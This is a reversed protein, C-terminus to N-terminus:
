VRALVRILGIARLSRHFLDYRAGAEQLILDGMDIKRITSAVANEPSTRTQTSLSRDGALRDPLPPRPLPRRQHRKNSDPLSRLPDEAALRNEGGSITPSATEQPPNTRPHPIEPRRPPGERREDPKQPLPHRTRRGPGEGSGPLSRQLVPLRCGPM